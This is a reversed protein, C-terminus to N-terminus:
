KYKHLIIFVSSQITSLLIIYIVMDVYVKEELIDAIVGTKQLIIYFVMALINFVWFCIVSYSVFSKLLRRFIVPLLIIIIYIAIDYFDLNPISKNVIVRHIQPFLIFSSLVSILILSIESLYVKTKMKM